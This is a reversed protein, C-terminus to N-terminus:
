SVGRRNCPSFGELWVGTQGKEEEEKKEEKKSEQTHQQQHQQQPENNDTKCCELLQKYCRRNLFFLIHQSYIGVFHLHYFTM